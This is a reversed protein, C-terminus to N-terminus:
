WFPCQWQLHNVKASDEQLRKMEEKLKELEKNQAEIQKTLKVKERKRELSTMSDDNNKTLLQLREIEQSLSKNERKTGKLAADKKKLKSMLDPICTLQKNILDIIEDKKKM